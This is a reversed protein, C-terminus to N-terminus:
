QGKLKYAAALIDEASATELEPAVALVRRVWETADARKEGLQVLVDIAAAASDPMEGPTVIEGDETIVEAFADLKGHLEAIITEATRKGIEPLSVLLKADKTEIAMAIEGIPRVLARLAKRMGIGKVKTFLTFFERSQEDRFGILRPIVQGRSPDGEIYHLTHLVVQEGVRGNFYGADCSPIMVEYWLGGGTSVVASASRLEELRGSIRTIM